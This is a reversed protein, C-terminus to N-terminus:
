KKKSIYIDEYYRGDMDLAKGTTTNRRTTFMLIKEDASIVPVYEPYKTNIVPGINEIRLEVPNEVLKM